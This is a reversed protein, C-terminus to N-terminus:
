IFIGAAKHGSGRPLPFTPMKLLRIAAPTGVFGGRPPRAHLAIRRLYVGLIPIKRRYTSRETTLYREEAPECWLWVDERVGAAPPDTSADESWGDGEKARLGVRAPNEIDAQGNAATM